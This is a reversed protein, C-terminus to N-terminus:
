IVTIYIASLSPQGSYKCRLWKEAKKKQHSEAAYKAALGSYHVTFPSKGSYTILWPVIQRVAVTHLPCWSKGNYLIASFTSKGSYERLTDRGRYRGRDMGRDRGRYRVRDRGRDREKDRVRYKGWDRGWGWGGGRERTPPIPPPPIYARIPPPISPPISPLISPLVSHFIFLSFPPLIYPRISHVFQSPLFRKEPRIIQRRSCILQYCLTPIHVPWFLLPSTYLYSGGGGCVICTQISAGYLSLYRTRV